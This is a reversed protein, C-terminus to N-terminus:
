ERRTARQEVSDQGQGDVTEAAGAEWPRGDKKGERTLKRTFVQVAIFSSGYVETSAVKTSPLEQSERERERQTYTHTVRCEMAAM